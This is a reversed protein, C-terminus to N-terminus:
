SNGQKLLDKVKKELLKNAKELDMNGIYFPKGIRITTRKFKKYTSIIAMPVVPSNTKKAFSVAGYKFPIIPDTTRNHTGEPFIGLIKGDQLLEVASSKATEDKISRDVPITGVSRFFHKKLGKHLSNKAMFFVTRRTVTVVLLPDINNKHNCALVVAGKPINNRDIIKPRYLLRIAGIIPYRIIRYLIARNKGM